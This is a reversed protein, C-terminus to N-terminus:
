RQKNKFDEFTIGDKEMFETYYESVENSPYTIDHGPLPYVLDYITYEGSEIDEKTLPRVLAKFNTPVSKEFKYFKETESKIPSTPSEEIKSSAPSDLEQPVEAKESVESIEEPVEKQEQSKGDKADDDNEEGENDSCDSGKDDKDGDEDPLEACKIEVEHSLNKDAYVLDGEILQLGFKQVRKSVVQNWIYSQYSHTYLLRMNRPVRNLAGNYDNPNKVFERLIQAEICNNSTQLRSLALKPSGTEAWMKRMEKMYWPEGDRQKLILDCASKYENKLLEIGVRFTPVDACNGFRQLGYYNIFGKEKLSELSKEIMEQNGKVDKLAIKFLNGKSDGLSLPYERFCFNGM